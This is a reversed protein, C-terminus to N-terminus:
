LRPRAHGYPLMNRRASASVWPRLGGFPSTHHKLHVRICSSESMVQFWICVVLTRPQDAEQLAPAPPTDGTGRGPTVTCGVGPSTVPRAHWAQEQTGPACARGRMGGSRGGGGGGGWAKKSAQRSGSLSGRQSPRPLPAAAAHPQARRRCPRNREQRLERALQRTHTHAAAPTHRRAGGGGGEPYQTHGGSPSDGARPRGAHGFSAGLQVQPGSLGTHGSVEQADRAM